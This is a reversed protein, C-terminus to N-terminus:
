WLIQRQPKVKCEMPVGLEYGVSDAIEKITVERGGQERSLLGADITAVFEFLRDYHLPPIRDEIMRAFENSIDVIGSRLTPETVYETNVGKTGFYDLRFSYHNYSNCNMIGITGDKFLIRYVEGDSGKRDPDKGEENGIYQISVVEYDGKTMWVAGFLNSLTHVSANRQEMKSNFTTVIFRPDGLERKLTEPTSDRQAQNVLARNGGVYLLISSSFIPTNYERAADIIKKANAACNAFPKDIFLPIGAKIFPLALEYHDDAYWSCNGIFAADIKDKDAMEQLSDYKVCGKFSKAFQEPTLKVGMREQTEEYNKLDEGTLSAVDRACGHSDKMYRTRENPPNFCGAVTTSCVPLTPMSEYELIYLQGGALRFQYRDSEGLCYAYILSHYDTRVFGIRNQKM